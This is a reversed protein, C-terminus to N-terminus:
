RGSDKELVNIIYLTSTCTYTEDANNYSSSRRQRSQAWVSAPAARASSQFTEPEALISSLLARQQAAAAKNRDARSGDAVLKGTLGLSNSSDPQAFSDDPNHPTAPGGTPLLEVDITGAPSSSERITYMQRGFTMLSMNRIIRGRWEWQINVDPIAAM